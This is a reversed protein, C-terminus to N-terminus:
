VKKAMLDDFDISSFFVHTKVELYDESSGGLRYAYFKLLITCEAIKLLMVIIIIRLNFESVLIM